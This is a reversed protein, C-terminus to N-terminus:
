PKLTWGSLSDAGHVSVSTAQWSAFTSSIVNEISQGRDEHQALKQIVWFDAQERLVQLPAAPAAIRKAGKPAPTKLNQLLHLAFDGEQM